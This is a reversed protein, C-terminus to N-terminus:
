ESLTAKSYHYYIVGENGFQVHPVGKRYQYEFLGNREHSTTVEKFSQVNNKSSFIPRSANNWFLGVTKYNFCGFLADDEDLNILFPNASADYYYYLTRFVHQDSIRKETETEINNKNDYVLEFVHKNILDYFSATRKTYDYAVSDTTYEKNSDFRTIKTLLNDSNFYYKRFDKHGNDDLRSLLITRAQLNYKVSDVERRLISDAMTTDRAGSGDFTEFLIRAPLAGDYTVTHKVGATNLERTVLTYTKDKECSCLLLVALLVGFVFKM